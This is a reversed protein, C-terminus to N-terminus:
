SSRYQRPMIRVFFYTLRPRIFQATKVSETCEILQFRLIQARSPDCKVRITAIYGHRKNNTLQLAQLDSSREGAIHEPGERM